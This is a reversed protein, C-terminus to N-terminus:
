QVPCDTVRQKLMEVAHVLPKSVCALCDVAGQPSGPLNVILKGNRTGATARSLIAYPTVELSRRRMVEGFGVLEKELLKQTVDVTVDRPGIGTGGTTLVVDIDDRRCYDLIKAEITQADDPIVVTERCDGGHTKIWNELRPGGADPRVGAAARDSTVLVVFRIGNLM